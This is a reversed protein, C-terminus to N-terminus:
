RTGDVGAARTTDAPTHGNELFSNLFERQLYRHMERAPDSEDVPLLNTFPHAADEALISHCTTCDNSIHAGFEDRMATNHCRFCGMDARHGRHDPYPNWGLNMTPFINREYIAQVTAVAADIAAMRTGSLKPYNRRYFGELHNAIGRLGAAKDPYRNRLAAVAERKIFPLSRDLRGTRLREDVARAPDEYIHTVRNHCDVCDMTRVAVEGVAVGGLRTNEYRRFSGDPQRVEVWVMEERQDKVSVYRVENAPDVHWHIGGKGGDSHADIKMVLTTYRPTSASDSQYKVMDKIRNGIFKEPWHCTECTERAPRLQHVPTPIPRSYTNFMALVMQRMGNLKSAVLADVGEGVHCEVCAVSAHPSEQYVVWEPNMVSHCATGCFVPEDMFALMRVSAVSFIVVNLLTFLGITIFLRSGTARAALSTDDFRHDLLERTSKGTDRRLKRWGIPILILGGVFLVPFALYTILGMYANTLVGLLRLAEFLLFCIVSTTTLVVGAKGIPNVSLGRIFNLYKQWM